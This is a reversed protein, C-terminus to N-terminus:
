VYDFSNSHCSNLLEYFYHFKLVYIITSSIYPKGYVLTTNTYLDRLSLVLMTGINFVNHIEYM